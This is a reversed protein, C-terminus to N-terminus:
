NYRSKVNEIQTFNYFVTFFNAITEKQRVFVFDRLYVNKNRIIIKLVNRFFIYNIMKIKFFVIKKVMILAM